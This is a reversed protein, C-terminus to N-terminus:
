WRCSHPSFDDFECHEDVREAPIIDIDGGENVCVFERGAAIYPGEEGFGYASAPIPLANLTAVLTFCIVMLCKAINRNM